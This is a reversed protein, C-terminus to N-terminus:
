PARASPEEDAPATMAIAPTLVVASMLGIRSARTALLTLALPVTVTLATPLLLATALPCPIVPPRTPTPALMVSASVFPEIFACRSPVTEFPLPPAPAVLTFITACLASM